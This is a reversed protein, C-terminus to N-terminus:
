SLSRKMLATRVKNIAEQVKTKNSPDSVVECPLPLTVKYEREMGVEQAAVISKGNKTGLIFRFDRNGIREPGAVVRPQDPHGFAM